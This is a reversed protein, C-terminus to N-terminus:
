ISEIERVEYTKAAPVFSDVKRKKDESRSESDKLKAIVDQTTSPKDDEESTSTKAKKWGTIAEFFGVAKRKPTM